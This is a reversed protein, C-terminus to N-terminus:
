GRAGTQTRPQTENLRGATEAPMRAERRRRALGALRGLEDQYIRSMALPAFTREFFGAMGSSGQWETRITVRTRRGEDVPTLSFTTVLSSSTDTEVLVSGPIAESVRMRYARERGGARVKFGIVTGAGFGGQEVQYDFFQPPLIERHATRYDALIDYLQNAPAAIVREASVVVRAM